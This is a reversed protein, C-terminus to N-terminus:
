ADTRELDCWARTAVSQGDRGTLLAAVGRAELWALAGDGCVLAATTATNAATCTHGLASVSRWPGDVPLGTSPDLLHHWLVGRHRWRRARLTSTAVGGGVLDLVVQPETDAELDGPVEAVTVGFGPTAAPGAVRVDGGVSMAVAIGLTSALDTAVVDAAFAKGTAGLDLRVGHPVFVADATTRVERWADARVPAPVRTPGTARRLAARDHATGPANGPADLLAFTRDYGIAEMAAGLAPDVLGDTETAAEVAVRVAAVLLPSVPTWHGAALNARSLDSDRRFRSCTADVEELAETAQVAAIALLAPDSVQLQVYTGLAQWTAASRDPRRM